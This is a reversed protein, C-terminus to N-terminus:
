MRHVSLMCVRMIYSGSIRETSRPIREMVVDVIFSSNRYCRNYHMNTLACACFPWIEVELRLDSTVMTKRSGSKRLTLFTFIEM